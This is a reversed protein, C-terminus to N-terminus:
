IYWMGPCSGSVIILDEVSCEESIDQCMFTALCYVCGAEICPSCGAVSSWYSGDASPVTLSNCDVNSSKIPLSFITLLIISFIFFTNM